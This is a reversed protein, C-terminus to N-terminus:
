PFLSQVESQFAGPNIAHSQHEMVAVVTGHTVWAEGAMTGKANEDMIGQTGAVQVNQPHGPLPVILTSQWHSMEMVASKLQPPLFPLNALANLVRTESVTGPVAVTPQPVEELTWAGQTMRAAAPVVVTFPRNNLSMPFLVHGGQSQILQNIHPVNLRLTVSVGTEVNVTPSAGLKAPWLNPMNYTKLGSLAVSKNEVPGTVAVSGYHTLNVRGGQTVVRSLQALQEPSVPVEGVSKVQFLTGIAAMARHGATQLGTGLGILVVAAAAWPVWRMAHRTRKRSGPHAVDLAEDGFWVAQGIEGFVQQCDSCSRLHDGLREQQSEVVEGDYFAMWQGEDPCRHEWMNTMKM